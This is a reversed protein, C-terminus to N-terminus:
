LPLAHLAGGSEVFVGAAGAAGGVLVARRSVTTMVTEESERGGQSTRHHESNARSRVATLPGFPSTAATSGGERQVHTRDCTAACAAGDVVTAGDVLTCGTRGVCPRM